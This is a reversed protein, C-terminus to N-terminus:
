KRRRALWNAPNQRVMPLVKGGHQCFKAMPM